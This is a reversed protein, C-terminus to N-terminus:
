EGLLKDIEREIMEEFPFRYDQPLSGLGTGLELRQPQFGAQEEPAGAAEERQAREAEIRQQNQASRATVEPGGQWQYQTADPIDEWGQHGRAAAAQREYDEEPALLDPLQGQAPRYGLNRAQGRLMARQWGPTNEDHLARDIDRMTFNRTADMYDGMEMGQLPGVEEDTLRARAPDREFDWVQQGSATRTEPTQEPAAARAPTPPTSTSLGPHGAQSSTDKYGTTLGLMAPVDRHGSQLRSSYEAALDPVVGQTALNSAPDPLLRMLVMGGRVQDALDVDLNRWNPNQDRFIEVASRGTPNLDGASIPVTVDGLGRDYDIEQPAPLRGGTAVGLQERL